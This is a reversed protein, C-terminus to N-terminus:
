NLDESYDPTESIDKALTQLLNDNSMANVFDVVDDVTVGFEDIYKKNEEDTFIDEIKGNDMYDYM